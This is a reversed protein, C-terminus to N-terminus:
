KLYKRLGNIYKSLISQEDTAVSWKNKWIYNSSTTTDKFTVTYNYRASNGHVDSNSARHKRSNETEGEFVAELIYRYSGDATYNKKLVFEYKYNPTKRKMYKKLFNYDYDGNNVIVLITESSSISDPFAGENYWKSQGYVLGTLLFSLIILTGKM